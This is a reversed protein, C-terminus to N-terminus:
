LGLGSECAAKFRWPDFRPNDSALAESIRGISEKVGLIADLNDTELAAAWAGNLANALAIYDKRTM